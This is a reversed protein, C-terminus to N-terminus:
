PLMRELNENIQTLVRQYTKLDEADIQQIIRQFVSELYPVLEQILREGQESVFILFSRRDNANPQKAILGKQELIDLIRTLTAPDKDAKLALEKQNLGNQEGVRKLVTWQEPTIDYPKLFSCITRTLKRYTFATQFGIAEELIQEDMTM